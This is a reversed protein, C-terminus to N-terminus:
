CHTLTYAHRLVSKQSFAPPTSATFLTSWLLYYPQASDAYADGTRARCFSVQQGKTHVTFPSSLHSLVIVLTGGPDVSLPTCSEVVSATHAIVGTAWPAIHCVCSCACVLVARRGAGESHCLLQPCTHTCQTQRCAQRCGGCCYAPASSAASVGCAAM